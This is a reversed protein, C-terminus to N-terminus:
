ERQGEDKTRPGKDTALSLPRPVFSMALAMICEALTWLLRLLLAIVAALPAAQEPPLLPALEPTLLRQLILERVGLGGPAPLTLFGAVYALTIFATFRSWTEWSWPPADPLVACALSWFSLGLLAWGCATLTLGLLMTGARLRPAPGAETDTQRGGARRALATLRGVIRHFVPPLIPIGALALLGVAKWRDSEDLAHLTFLVVAVLAGSAMTTLTEYGATVAAVGPRVNPGSILTMRLLLAWAKGPVYKGLHSIYYARMATPVTPQQGMTRLLVFWFTLPFALGTLYLAMCAVLSGARLRLAHEWVQPDQLLRAFQWGVGAIIALGLLAKAIPWFQRLNRNM